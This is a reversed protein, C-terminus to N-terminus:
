KKSYLTPKSEVILDSIEIDLAKGYLEFKFQIYPSSIGINLPFEYVSTNSIVGLKKWRDIFALAGGTSAYAGPYAEDFTITQPGGHSGSISTVHVTSGARDGNLIEIEDGVAIADASADTTVTFTQDSTWTIVELLPQLNADILSRVGKAKVWIRNSSARFRKFRVWLTDWFERVESAPIPPTTFFGRNFFASPSHIKELTWIFAPTSGALGEGSRGGALFSRTANVDTVPLPFLAGVAGPYGQGWDTSDWKGLSYKSYLRGTLPNLCWIGALQQRSPVTADFSGALNIYILDNEVMMGRVAMSGLVQGEEFNIPLAIKRGGRIMPSFSSGNYELFLGKNNLVIPSDYFAVGSIPTQGFMDHIENPSQSFGDWEVVKGSGGNNNRCLFWERKSTVFIHKIELESPFILRSNTVTESATISTRSFTHVKYGDGITMIKQFPFYTIPHSVGKTLAPQSKETIWWSANWARNGTDNLSAIDSDTTVFLQERGTDGTSDNEFIAMDLGGQPTNTLTDAAWGTDAANGTTRYLNGSGTAAALGWFRETCDADTILFTTVHGLNAITTTDAVPDMRRSLGVHGEHRDLDINHTRYLGNFQDETGSWRGIERPPIFRPMNTPRM